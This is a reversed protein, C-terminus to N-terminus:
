IRSRAISGGHGYILALAVMCKGVEEEAEMEYYVPEVGQLAYLKEKSGNIEVIQMNFTAKLRENAAAILPGFSKSGM